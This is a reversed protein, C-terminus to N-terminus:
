PAPAPKPAEAVAPPAAGADAPKPAERAVITFPERQEIARGSIADQIQLVLEYEGPETKDLPFGIIRSLRGLTTPRIPTPDLRMATSGDSVHKVVYGMAVQPMGSKPDKQAGYVDLSCFLTAGQEFTRRALMVPRKAGQSEGEKPPQLTDSILPSSIRFTSPDPVEFEHVVTGIRGTSKERVVMKAQYGGPKLEFDRILPFWTKQLKDRTSAQLKLEVKQDYRFFEGTERHAVVLLFEVTDYFRKDKEDFTLGRVDLDTAIVAQSKGLLTEDFVYSTMRLPLDDRDFPSDVAAQFAPDPAGPKPTFATKGESPAYYGKRARVQLGKKDPGQALKLQIKRFKGDRATNSPNYGILYYMRSEDAIRQIGKNLDNTNKVSFGGSDASISEAGESAEINESFAFGVDREDLAPGFQATM